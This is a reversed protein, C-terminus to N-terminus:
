SEKKFIGSLWRHLPHGCSASMSPCPARTIEFMVGEKAAEDMARRHELEMLHEFDAFDIGELSVMRRYTM